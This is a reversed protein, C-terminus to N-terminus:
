IVRVNFRDTGSEDGLGDPILIGSFLRGSRPYYIFYLWGSVRTRPTPHTSENVVM